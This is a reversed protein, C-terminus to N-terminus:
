SEMAKILEFIVPNRHNTTLTHFNVLPHQELKKVYPICSKENISRDIQEQSGTYILKSDKGLRTLTLIFDEYNLDQFEDIIVIANTYTIGKMFDIPLIQIEKNAFYEDIRKVDYADYMCQKIPAIQYDMKEDATGPLFGLSNKVIPRSIIVKNVMKKFFMDLATLVAVQTKGSGARGLVFTVNKEFIGKKVEKQEENLSIKFNIDRKIHKVQGPQAM